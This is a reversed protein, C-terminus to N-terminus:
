FRKRTKVPSGTGSDPGASPPSEEVAPREPAKTLGALELTAEFIGEAPDKVEVKLKKIALFRGPTSLEQVLRILSREDAPFSAEMPIELLGGPGERRVERRPPFKATSISRLGASAGAEVFRHAVALRLFWTDIDEAEIDKPFGLPSDAQALSIGFSLVKAQLEALKQQYYLKDRDQGPELGAPLELLAKSLEKELEALKKREEELAREVDGIPRGGDPFYSRRRQVLESSRRAEERAQEVLPRVALAWFVFLVVLCAAAAIFFRSTRSSM